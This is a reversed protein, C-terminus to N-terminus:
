GIALSMIIQSYYAGTSIEVPAYKRSLNGDLNQWNNLNFLKVMIIGDVHRRSCPLGFFEVCRAETLRKTKDKEENDLRCHTLPIREEGTRMNRTTRM